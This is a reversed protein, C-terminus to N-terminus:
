YQLFYWIICRIDIMKYICRIDIMKYRYLNRISFISQYGARCESWPGCVISDAIRDVDKICMVRHYLLVWLKLIIVAIKRIDSNKLNKCYPWLFFIDQKRFCPVKKMPRYTSYKKKQCVHKKKKTTIIELLHYRGSLSYIKWKCITIAALMDFAKSWWWKRCYNSKELSFIERSIAAM